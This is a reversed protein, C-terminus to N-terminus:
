PQSSARRSAENWIDARDEDFVLRADDPIMVWVRLALEGELQGPGWGAYGFAILSKVPGHHHGIDRLIEPSSTMAVKGDIDVTGSRQYDESHLIFGVDAQVPGGAFVRVQGTVGAADQGIAQM